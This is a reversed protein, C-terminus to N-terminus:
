MKILQFDDNTKKITQYISYGSIKFFAKDLQKEESKSNVVTKFEKYANLLEKKEIGEEYAKEVAQYLNMVKVLENVSWNIDLPYEYDM